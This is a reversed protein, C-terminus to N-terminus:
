PMKAPHTILLDVFGANDYDTRACAWGRTDFSAGIDGADIPTLPAISRTNLDWREV